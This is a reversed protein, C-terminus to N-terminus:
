PERHNNLVGQRIFNKPYETFLNPKGPAYDHPAASVTALSHLIFSALMPAQRALHVPWSGNRECFIFWGWVRLPSSVM